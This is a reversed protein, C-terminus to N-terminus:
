ASFFREAAEDNDAAVARDVEVRIRSRASPTLGFERELQIIRQEYRLMKAAIPFERHGLIRGKPNKKTPEGHVAHMEGYKRVFELAKRWLVLYVCYRGLGAGDIRRVMGSEVLPPVVEDWIARAQEDLFDPAPPMGRPPDPEADNIPRKGPNGGALKLQTPKPAPGRRGM